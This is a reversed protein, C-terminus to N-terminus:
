SRNIATPGTPDMWRRYEVVRVALLDIFGRV